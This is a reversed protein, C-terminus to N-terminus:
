IIVLYHDSQHVVTKSPLILVIPEKELHHLITASWTASAMGADMLSQGAEMKTQQHSMSM